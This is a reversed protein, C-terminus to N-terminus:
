NQGEFLFDGTREDILGSQSSDFAIWLFPHNPNFGRHKLADTLGALTDAAKLSAIVPRASRYPCMKADEFPNRVWLLKGDPGIAGVHRGDSEVYFAIGTRPDRYAMAKASAPDWEAYNPYKKKARHGDPFLFPPGFLMWKCAPPVFVRITKPKSQAVAGM